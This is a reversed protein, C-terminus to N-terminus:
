VHARGIEKAKAREEAKKEANTKRKEKKSSEQEQERDHDMDEDLHEGGWFDEENILDREEPFTYEEYGDNEDNWGTGDGEEAYPEETFFDPATHDNGFPDHNWGGNESEQGYAEQEDFNDEGM